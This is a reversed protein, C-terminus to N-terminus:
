ANWNLELWNMINEVIEFKGFRRFETKM